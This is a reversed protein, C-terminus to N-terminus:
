KDDLYGDNTPLDDSLITLNSRKNNQLAVPFSKKNDKFIKKLLGSPIKNMVKNKPM